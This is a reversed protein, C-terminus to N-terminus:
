TTAREQHATHRAIRVTFPPEHSLTTLSQAAEVTDRLALMVPHPEGRLVAFRTPALFRVARGARTDRDFTVTIARLDISRWERVDIVSTLAVAVVRGTVLTVLLSTGDTAVPRLGAAWVAVLPLLLVPPALPLLVLRTLASSEAGASTAIAWLATTALCLWLLIPGVQLTTTLRSSLRQQALAPETSM